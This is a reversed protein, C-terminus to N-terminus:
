ACPFAVVFFNLFDIIDELRPQITDSMLQERQVNATDRTTGSQEIGLATKSTGSVAFLTTRNIENIDMLAARDLDVQMSDWKIAGSGNGFLPEGQRHELVRAKFNAFDEDTLLVDTTIIGPADINGNLSQRTYDASQNITYVAEKAADTMAWQSKEPDFPNLEKMEIIMDKSWERYRGDKKREIYGAVEGDKNVVRRIEYPNLLIFEKVDTVIDPLNPVSSKKRIRVAGLYYVGALDLYISITKYFQKETFKDSNEILKLYPHLPTENKKQYEDVVEPKAWTNLNTKALSAVKNGRKQIVAYGYGKYMDEDSIRVDAWDAQLPQQRSGYKLFERGSVSNNTKKVVSGGLANIIKEKLGM